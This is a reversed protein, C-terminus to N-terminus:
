PTLEGRSNVSGDAGRMDQRISKWIVQGMITLAIFVGLLSRFLTDKLAAAINITETVDVPVFYIVLLLPAIVLLLQSFMVWFAARKETGCTEALVDQLLPRLLYVLCMSITFCLLIEGIVLTLTNM